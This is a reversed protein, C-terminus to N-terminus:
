KGSNSVFAVMRSNRCWSPVNITGQGGYLHAVVKPKADDTSMLRLMVHKYYPHEWPGVEPPYSLFIVWKGDPSPHPFWNQNQDNTIQTQESGDSRMRWIQMSGSRNSNFWIFGGCPSFDSGDSLGESHTLQLEDGGDVSISYINYNGNRMGTYILRSGNPSWGHWYSPGNPTVLVPKGGKIPMIYILSNLGDPRNTAHHSIALYRGDPSIGHDNNNRNAFDSQILQAVCEGITIRYLRGSGNLILFGDPHWNPAELNEDSNYVLQRHGTEIDLLEVNSGLYDSYPIFTNPAPFILRVNTFKAREMRNAHHASVFLGVYLADTNWDIDLSGMCQLPDGFICSSALLTNCKREIQLISAGQTSTQIKESITGSANRYQMAVLADGHLAIYFYPSEPTLNKRVLIGVTGYSDAGQQLFEASSYLIFDGGVLKWTFHFGATPNSTSSGSGELIFSQDSRFYQTAGRLLVSGVDTQGEFVGLHSLMDM